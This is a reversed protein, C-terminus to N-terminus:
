VRPIEAVEALMPAIAAAIEAQGAPEGILDQRVELELYDLGRAVAHHPVTFDTGDMSYPQNDGM